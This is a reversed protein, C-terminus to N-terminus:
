TVVGHAPPPPSEYVKEASYDRAGSQRHDALFFAEGGRARNFLLGLVRVGQQFLKVNSRQDEERWTIPFFGVAHRRYMSWLLMVYNFTLDDPFRDIQDIDLKSVRYLNLGSGLDTIWGGAVVSFMLNYVINGFTRLASYGDRRAGREFRSGLFCDGAFARGSKLHVILDNIDAQDDGHLVVLFDVGADRAHRFAVKHSGGLGYNAFNRLIIKRFAGDLADLSAQAVAITDDPSQNDVVVLREVCALDGGRGNLQAIVRGIQAACRYAPIFVMVKPAAVPAAHDIDSSVSVRRARRAAAIEQLAARTQTAVIPSAPAINQPGSIAPAAGRGQAASM